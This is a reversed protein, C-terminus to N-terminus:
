VGHCNLSFSYNLVDCVFVKVERVNEYEASQSYKTHIM